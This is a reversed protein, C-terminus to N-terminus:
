VTGCLQCHHWSPVLTITRRYRFQVSAYKYPPALITRCFPVAAYQHARAGENGEVVVLNYAM